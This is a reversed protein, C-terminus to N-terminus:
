VFDSACCSTPELRSSVSQWCDIGERAKAVTEAQRQDRCRHKEDRACVKHYGGAAVAHNTRKGRHIAAAGFLQVLPQRIDIDPQLRVRICAAFRCCRDAGVQDHMAGIRPQLLIQLHQQPVPGFHHDGRDSRRGRHDPRQMIGARQHKGIDGRDAMGLTGDGRAGVSKHQQRGTRAALGTPEIREHEHAGHAREEISWQHQRAADGVAVRKARGLRQAAIEGIHACFEDGRALAHRIDSILLHQNGARGVIDQQRCRERAQLGVHQARRDLRSSRSGSSRGCRPAISIPLSM